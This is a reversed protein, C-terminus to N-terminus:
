LIAAEMVTLNCINLRECSERKEVSKSSVPISICPKNLDEMNFLTNMLTAMRKLTHRRYVDISDFPMEPIRDLHEVSLIFFPNKNFKLNMENMAFPDRKKM